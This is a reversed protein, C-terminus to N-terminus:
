GDRTHAGSIRVIAAHGLDRASARLRLPLQQVKGHVVGLPDIGAHEALEDPDVQPSRDLAPGVIRDM